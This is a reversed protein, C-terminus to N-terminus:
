ISKALRDKIVDQYEELLNLQSSKMGYIYELLWNPETIFSFLGWNRKLNKRHYVKNREDISYDIAKDIEELKLMLQEQETLIKM